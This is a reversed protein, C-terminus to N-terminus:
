RNAIEIIKDATRQSAGEGGLIDIVGQYGNQMVQRSDADITIKKLEDELRELNYQEQILETVVPSDAILNVLSIYSIRSAILRKAIAASIKNCQYCVVEPVRFLATELTATGSCVIAAYAQSLIDYTRDYVITVNDATESVYRRYFEEGVLSMGAVVFHYESHKAALRMMTPLLRSLEQKRSGPLLAVVPRSDGEVLSKTAATQAEANYRAVEDLLPHGVYVAQPMANAAYFKRETPLIYCLADLDRRMPRIRGKKWAWIQPSIYYVNKIGHAHTYKAIKLNFGPYDIFVVVDPKFELIDRKCFSINGLVTSLHSIVEVFGMFALDRIHRVQVVKPSQFVGMKDGGWFRIDADHDRHLISRILNAGHLDGSAEGSIIYYKM